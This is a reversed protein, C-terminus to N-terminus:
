PGRSRYRWEDPVRLAALRAGITRPRAVVVLDVFEEPADDDPPPEGYRPIGALFYWTGDPLPRDSTVLRFTWGRMRTEQGDVARAVEALTADPDARRADDWARLAWGEYDPGADALDCRVFDCLAIGALSAVALGGFRWPRARVAAFAGLGLRRWQMLAATCGGGVSLGTFFLWWAFVHPPEDVAAFYLGVLAGFVVLLVAGSILAGWLLFV